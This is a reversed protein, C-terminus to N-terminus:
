RRALVGCGVFGLVLLFVVGMLTGGLIAMVADGRHRMDDVELLPLVMRMTTVFGAIGGLLGLGLLATFHRSM